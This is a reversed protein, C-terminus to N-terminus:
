GRAVRQQAEAIVPPPAPASSGLPRLGRPSPAPCGRSSSRSAPCGPPPRPPPAGVRSRAKATTRKYAPPVCLYVMSKGSCRTELRSGRFMFWTMILSSPSPRRSSDARRMRTIPHMSTNKTEASTRATRADQLGCRMVPRVSSGNPTCNGCRPSSPERDIKAATCNSQGKLPATCPTVPRGCIYSQEPVTCRPVIPTQDDTAQQKCGCASATVGPHMRNCYTILCGRGTLLSGVDLRLHLWFGNTVNAIVDDCATTIGCLSRQLRYTGPMSANKVLSAHLDL